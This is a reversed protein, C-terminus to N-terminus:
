YMYIIAQSILTNIVFFTQHSLQLETISLDHFMIKKKKKKKAECIFHLIFYM